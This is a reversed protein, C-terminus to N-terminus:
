NNKTRTRENERLGLFYEREIKYPDSGKPYTSEFRIVPQHLRPDESVEGFAKNRKQEEKM